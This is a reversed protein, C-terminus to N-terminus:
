PTEPHRHIAMIGFIESLTAISEPLATMTIAISYIYNVNAKKPIYHSYYYNFFLM